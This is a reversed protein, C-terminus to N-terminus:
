ATGDGGGVTRQWLVNVIRWGETTRVLHIYEHYVASRVTVAAIWDYVDDIRVDIAREEPTTARTRGVGRATLDVMTQRTDEDLGDPDADQVLGFEMLQGMPARKALNTHLSRGMRDPDGAYWSDYYDRVVVEIAKPDAEVKRMDARM